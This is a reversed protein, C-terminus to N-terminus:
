TKMKKIFNIVLKGYGTRNLHLESNTLCNGGVNRNDVVDINLADLHDNVNKVTLSAKGNDSLYIVNSVFVKYKPRLNEIFNKLSLIENLIVWSTENVSNNTQIHLIINDPNKKLLPKLYNYMDHTTAGPFICVKVNRNGFIRKQEIGALVSDGVILTKGRKWQKISSLKEVNEITLYETETPVRKENKEKSEFGRGPNRESTM